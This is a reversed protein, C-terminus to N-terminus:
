FLGLQCYKTNSWGRECYLYHEISAWWKGSFSFKKINGNDILCLTKDFVYLKVGRFLLTAVPKKNFYSEEKKLDDSIKYNFANLRRTSEVRFTSLLSSFIFYFVNAGIPNNEKKCIKIYRRCMFDFDWFSINFSKRKPVKYYKKTLEKDFMYILKLSRDVVGESCREAYKNSLLTRVSNAFVNDWEARKM